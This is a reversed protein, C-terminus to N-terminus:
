KWGSWRFTKEGEPTWLKIEKKTLGAYILKGSVRRQSGKKHKEKGHHDIVMNEENVWLTM